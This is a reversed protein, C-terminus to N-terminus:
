LEESQPPPPGFDALEPPMGFQLDERVGGVELALWGTATLLSSVAQVVSEPASAGATLGIIRHPRLADMRIEDPGDILTAEANRQRAVECLRLSNSSNASGVVLIHTAGRDVLDKVATQRNTTAYCIDHSGPHILRPFRNRLAAIIGVTDDISLTTQTVYAIEESPDLPLAEVDATSQVPHVLRPAEGTTGVVEDHGAHGILVIPRNVAAHRRVSSHVRTVLPCTADVVRLNRRTAEQRVAPSVGHASFVVLAGDPVEDLEDIFIVGLRRFSSVVVKNHVIEKRVYLPPAHIALLHKVVGIARVVGACFGRPRAILLQRETEM